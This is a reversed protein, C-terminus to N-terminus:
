KKTVYCIFLAAEIITIIFGPDKTDSGDYSIKIIFTAKAM